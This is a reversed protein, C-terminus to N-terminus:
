GCPQMPGIRTTLNYILSELDHACDMDRTATVDDALFAYFRMISALRRNITGPQYVKGVQQMVFSDVDHFTVSAPPREGVSAAFQRLDYSYDRSTRAQPNRRHLWNVFSDIEALM